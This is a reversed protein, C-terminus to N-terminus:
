SSPAAAPRRRYRLARLLDGAEETACRKQEATLADRWGGVSRAHAQRAARRFCARRGPTEVGLTDLLRNGEAEPAQVFDEYRLEHYAGPPLADLAQRASEVHRRWAWICRHFDTTARFAESREPEV